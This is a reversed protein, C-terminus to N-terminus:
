ESEAEPNKVATGFSLICIYLKDIDQFDTARDECLLGRDQAVRVGQGETLTHM